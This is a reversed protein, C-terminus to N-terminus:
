QKNSLSQLYQTLAEIEQDTLYRESSTMAADEPEGDLDAYEQGFAPMRAGQKIQQPSQIWKYIWEATNEHYSGVTLREAFNNLNPGMSLGDPSIAHCQMCNAKFLEEGAAVSESVAAPTTMEAVWADFEEQPLAIVKFDMLAHSAGCLEACKGLYTGPEKADFYMRNTLGPLTDTKGALGPIWFSHAVDAAELEVYITKGVPIYLDQATVIGYDPYEFQWWFQKATVIIKEANPLEEYDRGLEFTKQVTPVALILLLLMPIVTWIIELKHNGEVQKPIGTQGKRKRFRILVYFFLAFVVILVFIMIGFALMILWLQDEAVSGKPNLPNAVEMASCGSLLLATVTLAM